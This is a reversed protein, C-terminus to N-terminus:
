GEYFEYKQVSLMMLIQITANLYKTYLSGEVKVKRLGWCLGKRVRLEHTPPPLLPGSAQVYHPHIDKISRYHGTM